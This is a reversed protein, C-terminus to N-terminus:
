CGHDLDGGDAEHGLAEGLLVGGVPTVGSRLRFLCGLILRESLADLTLRGHDYLTDAWNGLLATSISEDRGKWMGLVDSRFSHITSKDGALVAERAGLAQIVYPVPINLSRFGSEITQNAPHDAKLVALGTTTTIMMPPAVRNFLKPLGFADDSDLGLSGDERLLVLDGANENWSPATRVIM